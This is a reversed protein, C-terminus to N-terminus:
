PRLSASTVCVQEVRRAERSGGVVDLVRGIRQTLATTEAWAGNMPRMLNSARHLEAVIGGVM